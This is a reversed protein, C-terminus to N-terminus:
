KKNNFKSAVVVDGDSLKNNQKWDGASDRKRLARVDLIDSDVEILTKGTTNHNKEM